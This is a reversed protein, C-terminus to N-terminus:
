EPDTGHQMFPDNNYRWLRLSLTYVMYKHLCFMYAVTDMSLCGGLISFNSLSSSGHRSTPVM